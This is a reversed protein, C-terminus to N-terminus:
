ASHDTSTQMLQAAGMKYLDVHYLQVALQNLTLMDYDIKIAQELPFMHLQDQYSGETHGHQLQDQYSGETHGHQLQDQNICCFL